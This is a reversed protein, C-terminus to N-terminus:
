TLFIVHDNPHDNCECGLYYDLIIKQSKLIEFGHNIWHMLSQGHDYPIDRKYKEYSDRFLDSEALDLKITCLYSDLNFSIYKGKEERPNLSQIHEAIFRTYVFSDEKFSIFNEYHKLSEERQKLEEETFGQFCKKMLCPVKIRSYEHLSRM